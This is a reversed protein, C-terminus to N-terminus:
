QQWFCVAKDIKLTDILQKGSKERRYLQITGIGDCGSWLPNKRRRGEPTEYRLRMMQEKLCSCSIRIVANKNQAM